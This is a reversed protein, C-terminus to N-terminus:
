KEYDKIFLEGLATLSKNTSKKSDKLFGGHTMIFYATSGSWYGNLQDNLNKYLQAKM